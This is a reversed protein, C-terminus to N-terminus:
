NHFSIFVKQLSIQACPFLYFLKNKIYNTESNVNFMFNCVIVNAILCMGIDNVDLKESMLNQM